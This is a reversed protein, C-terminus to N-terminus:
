KSIVVYLGQLYMTTTHEQSDRTILTKKTLWKMKAVTKHLWSINAAM